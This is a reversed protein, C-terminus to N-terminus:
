ACNSPRFRVQSLRSPSTLCLPGSISAQALPRPPGDRQRDQFIIFPVIELKGAMGAEFRLDRGDGVVDGVVRMVDVIAQARAVEGELHELVHREKGGQHLLDVIEIRTQFFATEGVLHHAPLDGAHDLVNDANRLRMEALDPGFASAVHALRAKGHRMERFLHGDGVPLDLLQEEGAYVAIGLDHPDPRPRRLDDGIEVMGEHGIPSM